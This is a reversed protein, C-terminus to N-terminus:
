DLYVHSFLNFVRVIPMNQPRNQIIEKYRTHKKLYKHYQYNTLMLVGRGDVVIMSSSIYSSIGYFVSSILIAWNPLLPKGGMPPLITSIAGVGLSKSNPPRFNQATAGSIWRRLLRKLFNQAFKCFITSLITRNENKCMQGAYGLRILRIRTVQQQWLSTDDRPVENYSDYRHPATWKGNCSDKHSHLFFMKEDSGEKQDARDGIKANLELTHSNVYGMIHVNIWTYM